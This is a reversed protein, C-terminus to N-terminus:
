NDVFLRREEAFFGAVEAQDAGQVQGVQDGLEVAEAAYQGDEGGHAVHGARGALQPIHPRRQRKHRKPQKEVKKIALDRPPPPLATQHPLLQIRQSIQYTLM